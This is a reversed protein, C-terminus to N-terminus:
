KDQRGKKGIIIKKTEFAEFFANKTDCDQLSNSVFGTITYGTLFRGAIVMYINTSAGILIFGLFYAPITCFLTAGRRGFTNMAVGAILCTLTAGLSHFSGLVYNFFDHIWFNLHPDSKQMNENLYRIKHHFEVYM